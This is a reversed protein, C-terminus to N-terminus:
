SSPKRPKPLLADLEGSSIITRIASGLEAVLNDRVTRRADEDANDPLYFTIPQKLHRTNFPMAEATPEGYATNM